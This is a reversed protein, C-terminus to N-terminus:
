TNPMHGRHDLPAPEVTTDCLMYRGLSQFPCFKKYSIWEIDEDAIEERRKGFLEVM